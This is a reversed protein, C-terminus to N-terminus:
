RRAQYTEQGVDSLEVSSVAGNAPGWTPAKKCRTCFARIMLIIFSGVAITTVIGKSM